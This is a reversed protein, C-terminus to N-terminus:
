ELEHNALTDKAIVATTCASSGISSDVLTRAAVAGADFDGLLLDERSHKGLALRRAVLTTSTALNHRLFTRMATSVFDDVM